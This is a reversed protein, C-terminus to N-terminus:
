LYKFQCSSMVHHDRYRLLDREINDSWRHEEICTLTFLPEQASSGGSHEAFSPTFRLRRDAPLSQVPPGDVQPVPATLVLWSPPDELQAGHCPPVASVIETNGPVIIGRSNDLLYSQINHTLVYYLPPLLNLWYFSRKLRVRPRLLWDRPKRWVPDSLWVPSHLGPSGVMELIRTWLHCHHTLHTPRFGLVNVTALPPQRAPTQPPPRPSSFMGPLGPRWDWVSPRRCRCPPCCCWCCRPPRGGWLHCFCPPPRENTWISHESQHFMVIIAGLDKGYCCM